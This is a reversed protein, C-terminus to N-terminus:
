LNLLLPEPYEQLMRQVEAHNSHNSFVFIWIKYTKASNYRREPTYVYSKWMTKKKLYSNSAQLMQQWWGSWTRCATEKGCKKVQRRASKEIRRNFKGGLHGISTYVFLQKSVMNSRIPSRKRGM